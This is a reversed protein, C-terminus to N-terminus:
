PVNPMEPPANSIRAEEVILTNELIEKLQSDIHFRSAGHELNLRVGKKQAVALWDAMMEILDILTMGNIGEPFHEPHHRNNEYHRQLGPGMLALTAKYGDSAFSHKSMEPMWQDFATKELGSLKSIDHSMGRFLIQEAWGKLIAEVLRQHDLVDQTCDYSM